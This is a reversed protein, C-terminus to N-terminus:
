ALRRSFQAPTEIPPQTNALDTLDRDGSVLVNVKASRALALLYDDNPDRTSVAPAGEPDTRRGSRSRSCGRSFAIQRRRASRM